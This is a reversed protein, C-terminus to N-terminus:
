CEKLLLVSVFIRFALHSTPYIQTSVSADDVYYSRSIYGLAYKFGIKVHMDQLRMRLAGRSM